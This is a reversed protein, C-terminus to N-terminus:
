RQCHACFYTGRQGQRIYRIAACCKLCPQGERGYVQTQTQFHGPAGDSGVFDRLSSGGAEIAQALVDRIALALDSCRPRSVRHALTTPRIGARFLAESAYINGVGVVANGQLLAQKIAVRRNRFQTHLFDGTFGADFPEIGLSRLLKHDELPGDALAHWVVAGFRRPDTLRLVVDPTAAGSETRRRFGIEFHDWPGPPIGPSILQLSGSMGLHIILYGQGFQILLYKGRRGVGLVQQKYLLEELNVPAPWRLPKNSRRVMVVTAGLLSPAIGRRTVEVEPLEPM